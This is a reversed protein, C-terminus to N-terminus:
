TYDKRYPEIDEWTLYKNKIASMIALNWSKKAREPKEWIEILSPEFQIYGYM